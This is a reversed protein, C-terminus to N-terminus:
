DSKKLNIQDVSKLMKNLRKGILKPYLNNKIRYEKSQHSVAGNELQFECLLKLPRVLVGRYSEDDELYTLAKAVTELTSLCGDTPQTRITYDSVTNSILKIQKLTHLKPNSAYIAKAQPWTGDIVIINFPNLVNEKLNIKTIDIAQPSPYLLLTNAHELINKLDENTTPFRKGKFILCKEKALGLKLMPATRLCRKEEAPHQLIIVRSNPNLPPDPLASCWCVRTPRECKECLDRMEPPEAPLCGLENFFDNELELDM